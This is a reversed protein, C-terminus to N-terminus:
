DDSEMVTLPMHRDGAGMQLFDCLPRRLAPTVQLHSSICLDETFQGSAPGAVSMSPILVQSVCVSRRYEM